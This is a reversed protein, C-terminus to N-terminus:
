PRQTPIPIGPIVTPPAPLVFDADPVSSSVSTAEMSWTGGSATFSSVLPIGKESWCFRGESVGAAAASVAKVDYCLAKQGAIEKSEVYSGGYSEPHTVLSSQFSAALNNDLPSGTPPTSLCQPTGSTGFCMFVGDALSFISMTTSQGGFDTKFDFRANPPKFYWSQEGSFSSGSGTATLRYTVKYEALKAQSLLAALAPGSATSSTTANASTTGAPVSSAAASSTPAGGTPPSATGGCSAVLLAAALLAALARATM